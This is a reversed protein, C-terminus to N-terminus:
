KIIKLLREKSISEVTDFMTRLGNKLSGKETIKNHTHPYVIWKKELTSFPNIFYVILNKLKILDPWSKVLANFSDENNYFVLGHHEDPKMEKLMKKIDIDFCSISYSVTRDKEEVIVLDEKQVMDKIKKFYIDRNKLFRIFWEALYDVEKM